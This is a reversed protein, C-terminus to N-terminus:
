ADPTAFVKHKGTSRRDRFSLLLQRLESELNAGKRLVGFTALALEREESKLLEKSTVVIVSPRGSESRNALAALFADGDQRPLILDLLVLDPQFKDLAIVAEQNTATLRVQAAGAEFV